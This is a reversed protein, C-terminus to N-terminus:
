VRGAKIAQECYGSIFKIARNRYIEVASKSIGLVKAAESFSKGDRLTLIYCEKQRGQLHAVAEGMLMQPTSPQSDAYMAEDERLSDPNARVDEAVFDFRDGLKGKQTQKPHSSLFQEYAGASGPVESLKQAKVFHRERSQLPASKLVNDRRVKSLRRLKEWSRASLNKANIKDKM